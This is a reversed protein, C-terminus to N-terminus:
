PRVEPYSRELGRDINQSRMFSDAGGGTVRLADVVVDGCFIRRMPGSPLTAPGRADTESAAERLVVADGPLVQACALYVEAPYDAAAPSVATALLAVAILSHWTTM